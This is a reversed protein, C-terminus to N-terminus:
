PFIFHGDACHKGKSAYFATYSIVAFMKPTNVIDAPM